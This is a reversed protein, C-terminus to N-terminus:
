GTYVPTRVIHLEVGTGPYREQNVAVITQGNLLLSLSSELRHLEVFSNQNTNVIVFM